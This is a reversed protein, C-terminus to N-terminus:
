PRVKKIQSSLLDAADCLYIKIIPRPRQVRSNQPPDQFDLSYASYPKIKPGKGLWNKKGKTKAQPFILDRAGAWGFLQFIRFPCEVKDIREGL